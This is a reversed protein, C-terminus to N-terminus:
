KTAKEKTFALRLGPLSAQKLRKKIEEKVAEFTYYNENTGIPIWVSYNIKEMKINVKAPILYKRATIYYKRTYAEKNELRNSLKAFDQLYEELLLWAKRDVSALFYVTNFKSSSQSYEFKNNLIGNVSVSFHVKKNEYLEILRSKKLDTSFTRIFLGIKDRGPMSIPRNNSTNYKGPEIGRSILLENIINDSCTNKLRSNLGRKGSRYDQSIKILKEKATQLDISDNFYLKIPDFVCPQIRSLSIENRQQKYDLNKITDLFEPKLIRIPTQAIKELNYERYITVNDNGVWTSLYNVEIIYGNINLRYMFPYAIPFGKWKGAYAKRTSFANKILAEQENISQPNFIDKFANLDLCIHVIPIDLLQEEILWSIGIKNKVERRPHEIGLVFAFQSITAITERLLTETPRFKKNKVLSSNLQPNYKDIQQKERKDLEIVNVKEYYIYFDKHKLQKLQFIRHHAKGRWRKNINKAKGIYWVLNKEDVVYYVGTYEPLLEKTELSTKNLDIIEADAIM